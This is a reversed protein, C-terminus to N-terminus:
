LGLLEKLEDVTLGAAELKEAATLPKPPPPAVYPNPMNGEAVWALYTRWESSEPNPPISTITGDENTRTVGPDSVGPFPAQLTYVVTM